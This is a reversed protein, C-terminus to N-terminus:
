KEELLQEIKNLRNELTKQKNKLAENEKKLQIAYLFLEEIKELNKVSTEALNIQMENAEVERFSKIGPLHGHQIIFKEVTELDNFEYDPNISSAGELYSEFVYDPYTTTASQFATAQATGSVVLPNGGGLNIVVRDTGGQLFRFSDNTDRYMLGWNSFAPSQSLVMRDSNNTGSEFLHIISTPSGNTAPFTFNTQDSAFNIVDGSNAVDLTSGSRSWFSTSTNNVWSVNGAGDTQMIQNATGDTTPFAYGTGTPDGVQLTGNARLINNDFEGYVLPETSSSNEIILRHSINTLNLGSDKGIFINNSGTLQRGSYAGLLVNNDGMDGNRGAENGIVTNYDGTTTFISAFYGLLTNGTGLNRLGAQNGIATNKDGSQNENLTGLGLGVNASGTTNNALSTAGIAVNVAGTTNAFLASSGIALNNGGTTTNQAAGVGIAIQNNWDNQLNRFANTGIAIVGSRNTLSRGAFDGLLVNSGGGTLNLGAERGWKINSNIGRLSGDTDLQLRIINNTRLTLFQNDTTGLFNTSPNTGSNGTLSWANAISSADVWSVSGAGDTQMVQGNTGRSAPLTYIDSNTRGVSVNGLFYGAWTNGTTRLVESYVGYLDGGASTSILNHSGTKTGSGSGSLINYTGFHNGSGTTAISQRTGYNVGNGSGSLITSVGYHEGNGNGNITNLSGYQNANSTNTIENRVGVLLGSNSGTILNRTGTINAANTSVIGNQTGINLGTGSSNLSNSIGIKSANGTGVVSNEIGTAPGNGNYTLNYGVSTRNVDGTYSATYRTLFPETLNTNFVELTYNPNNRGIGVKGFTYIDDNISNPASTGGVEFFDADDNAISSTDVWSVNGSGDTQMIQGNTGRSTPMIYYNPTTANWVETGIAVSGVFFGAFSGSKLVENYTGFHTGASSPTISNFVGFKTSANGSIINRTGYTFGTGSGSMINDVGYQSNGGNNVMSNTVGFRISNGGGTVQNRIGAKVSTGNTFIQNLVGDIVGTSGQFTNFVGRKIGTGGSGFTNYMGYHNGNGSNLIDSRIAEKSSSDSGPMVINISRGGLSSIDLPYDATTKGIALNGQTYMDDTIADPANTTGEEYFDADDSVISSIDVWNVNGSGDTQMVQGNTGRAAPLIYWDPTGSVFSSEGIAVRGNFLGAFSGTKTAESYIGYHTGGSAPNIVNYSGFKREAGSGLIDNYSGYIRGSSNSQLINRTGYRPGSGTGDLINYTGTNESTAASTIWNYNGYRFGNGSGQIRSYVGYRAADGSGAISNFSGYFIGTGGGTLVSYYGYHSGSGTNNNLVYSGYKAGGSNGSMQASIARDDTNEVIDLAYLPNTKGIAVNGQTFLNDNINDPPNTTGEEFFDADSGGEASTIVKDWTSGNFVYFGVGSGGTTSLNTNYIMLGTAATNAGDIQTTAVNDLSVRPILMGKDSSQIDLASSPDPTTTNIGVQGLLPLGILLCAIKIFTKM